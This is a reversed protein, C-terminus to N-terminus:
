KKNISRLEKRLEKIQEKIYILHPHDDGMRKWLRNYEDKYFEYMYAIGNSVERLKDDISDAM